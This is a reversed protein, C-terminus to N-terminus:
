REKVEARVRNFERLTALAVGKHTSQQILYEALFEYDQAVLEVMAENRIAEYKMKQRGDVIGGVNIDDAEQQMMVAIECNVSPPFCQCVMVVAKRLERLHEAFQEDSMEEINMTKEHLGKSGDYGSPM